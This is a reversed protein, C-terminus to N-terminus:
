VTAKEGDRWGPGCREDRALVGDDLLMSLMQEVFLPNGESAHVIRKQIDEDLETVRNGGAVASRSVYIEVRGRAVAKQVTQRLAADEEVYEKPLVVKLDLFRQNVSKIVKGGVGM